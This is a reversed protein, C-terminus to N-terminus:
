ELVTEQSTLLKRQNRRENNKIHHAVFYGRFGPMYHLQYKTEGNKDVLIDLNNARDFVFLIRDGVWYCHPNPYLTRLQRMVEVTMEHQNLFEVFERYNTDPLFSVNHETPEGYNEFINKAILPQWKELREKIIKALIANSMQKYKPQIFHQFNM